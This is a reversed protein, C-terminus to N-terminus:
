LGRGMIDANQSTVYQDLIYEISYELIYALINFKTRFIMEDHIQDFQSGTDIVM